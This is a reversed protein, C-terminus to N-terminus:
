ASEGTAAQSAVRRAPAVLRVSSVWVAAWLPVALATAVAPAPDALVIEWSTGLGYREAWLLAVFATYLVALAAVSRWTAVVARGAEPGLQGSRVVPRVLLTVVLLLRALLALDWWIVLVMFIAHYAGPIHLAAAQEVSEIRWLETGAVWTWHYAAVITAAVAAPGWALLGSALATALRPHGPAVGARLIDALGAFAFVSVGAAASLLVSDGLAGTPFRSAGDVIAAPDAEWVVLALWLSLVGFGLVLVAGATSLPSLYRSLLLHRMLVDGGALARLSPLRGDVSRLPQALARWGSAQGSSRREASREV